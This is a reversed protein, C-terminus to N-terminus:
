EGESKTEGGLSNDAVKNGGRSTSMVRRGHSTNLIEGSNSISFTPLAEKAKLSVGGNERLLHELKAQTRADELQSSLDLPTCGFSDVCNVDAGAIILIKVTETHGGQCALHLPSRHNYDTVNPDANLELLRAVDLSHGCASAEFLLHPGLSREIENMISSFDKASEKSRDGNKDMTEFFYTALSHAGKSKGEDKFTVEGRSSRSFRMELTARDPEIPILVALKTLAAETTM